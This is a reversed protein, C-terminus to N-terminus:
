KSKQGFTFLFAYVDQHKHISSLMDRVRAISLFGSDLWWKDSVEHLASIPMVLTAVMLDAIALSLILYNSVRKIFVTLIKQLDEIKDVVCFDDNVNRRYYDTTRTTEDLQNNELM